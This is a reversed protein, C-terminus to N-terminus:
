AGLAASLARRAFARWATLEDLSMAAVRARLRASLVYGLEALELEVARVRDDGAGAGRPSPSLFVVGRRVLLLERATPYSPGADAMAEGAVWSFSIPPFRGLQNQTSYF